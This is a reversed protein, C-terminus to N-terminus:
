KQQLCQPLILNQFPGLILVFPKSSNYFRVLWLGKQAISNKAQNVAEILPDMRTQDHVLGFRLRELEKNADSMTIYLTKLVYTRLYEVRHNGDLLWAMDTAQAYGENWVVRKHDEEKSSFTLCAINIAKPNVIVSIAHEMQLPQLDRGERLEKHMASLEGELIRRENFQTDGRSIKPGKGDDDDTGVSMIAYGMYCNNEIRRRMAHIIEGEQVM